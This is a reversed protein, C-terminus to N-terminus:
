GVGFGGLFPTVFLAAIGILVRILFDILFAYFRASLGAPRLELVIGEPTEAAVVTDLVERLM